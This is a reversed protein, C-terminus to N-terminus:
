KILFTQWPDMLCSKAPSNRNIKDVTDESAQTFATIKPPDSPPHVYNETCFPVCTDRVTKIKYLLFSAFQDALSKDSEHSLTKM